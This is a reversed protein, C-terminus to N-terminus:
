ILAPFHIEWVDIPLVVEHDRLRVRHLSFTVGDPTVDPNPRSGAMVIRPLEGAMIRQRRLRIGVAWAVRSEMLSTFRRHMLVLGVPALQAIGISAGVMIEEDVALQDSLLMEQAESDARLPEPLMGIILGDRHWPVFEPLQGTHFEWGTATVAGSVM